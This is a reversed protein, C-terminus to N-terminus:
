KTRNQAASIRFNGLRRSLLWLVVAAAIAVLLGIVGHQPITLVGKQLFVGEWNFLTKFGIPILYYVAQLRGGLIIGFMAGCIGNIGISAFKHILDAKYQLSGDPLFATLNMAQMVGYGIGCAAGIAIAVAANKFPRITYAAAVPIVIAILEVLAFILASGLLTLYVSASPSRPNIAFGFYASQIAPLIQISLWYLGIGALFVIAVAPARWEKRCYFVMWAAALAALILYNPFRDFLLAFFSRREIQASEGAALRTVTIENAKDVAKLLRGADDIYFVQNVPDLRLVRVRLDEGGFSLRENPMVTIRLPLLQNLQPIMADVFVSDGPERNILYMAIEWQLAFNNDLLIPWRQTPISFPQDVGLRVSKGFYEKGTFTGTHTVTANLLKLEFDYRRPLGNPRYGIESTVDLDLTRGSREFISKTTMTFYVLSDDDTQRWGLCEARQNGITKGRRDIRFEVVDGAKYRDELRLPRPQALTTAALALLLIAAFARSALTM